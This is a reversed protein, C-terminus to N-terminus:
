ILIMTICLILFLIHIFLVSRYYTNRGNINLLGIIAFLIVLAAQFTAANLILYIIPLHKKVKAENAIFKLPDYTPASSIIMKNNNVISSTPTPAPTNSHQLIYIYYAWYSIFIILFIKTSYLGYKRKRRSFYLFSINIIFLCVLIITLLM